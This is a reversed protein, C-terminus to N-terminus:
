GARKTAWSTWLGFACPMFFVAYLFCLGYGAIFNAAIMQVKPATDQRFQSPLLAVVGTMVGLGIVRGVWHAATEIPVDNASVDDLTLGMHTVPGIATGFLLMLCLPLGGDMDIGNIAPYLAVAALVVFLLAAVSLFVM